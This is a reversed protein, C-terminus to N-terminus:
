EHLVGRRSLGRVELRVPADTARAQTFLRSLDRGVMM